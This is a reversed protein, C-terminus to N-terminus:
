KRYMKAWKTNQFFKVLTQNVRNGRMFIYPNGTFQIDHGTKHKGIVQKEVLSALIKDVTKISLGTEDAMAQRTLVKGNDYAFIGTTYRVYDMLYNVFQSETGTLSRSLEFLPKTYVKVYPENKNLEVTNELYECSQKRLIRVTDGEYIDKYEGTDITVIRARAEEM